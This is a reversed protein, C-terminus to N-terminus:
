SFFTSRRHTKFLFYYRVRQRVRRKLLNGRESEFYMTCTQGQFSRSIRFTSVEAHKKLVGIRSTATVNGAM